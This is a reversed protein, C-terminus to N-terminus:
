QAKEESRAKARAADRKEQTDFGAAALAKDLDCWERHKKAGDAFDGCSPCCPSSSGDFGPHEGTWELALLVAVLQEQVSIM